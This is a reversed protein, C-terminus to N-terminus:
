IGVSASHRRQTTNSFAPSKNDIVAQVPSDILVAKEDKQNETEIVAGVPSM